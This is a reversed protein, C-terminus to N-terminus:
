HVNEVDVWNKKQNSMLCAEILKMLYHGQNFDVYNIDHIADKAIALYFEQISNKFADAWGVAHGGPLNIFRKANESIYKADAYIMENGTDRKGIYLRDAQEQKWTLSQKSGSICVKLGNKCGGTVQSINISVKTGDELKAIIFAGDENVVEVEEVGEGYVQSFTEGLQERKKRMPYATILEAFVSKIKQNCIFQITDFVHSGIDAIARSPGVMAPDFHWDYDTDYMLWDQLYEAQILLTDGITQNLVRERMERVMLNSRYNLNVAHLANHRKATEVLDKSEEATLSLPKECFVHINNQLVKKAIPYHSSNPACIHIVDLEELQLLTDLDTFYHLIGYENAFSKVRQEDNDVVAIVETGPIRRIAEYHQKGIFGVGVIAAKLIKKM